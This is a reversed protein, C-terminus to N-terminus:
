MTRACGDGYPAVLREKTIRRLDQQWESQVTSSPSTIPMRQIRVRALAARDGRLLSAACVVIILWARHAFLPEEEEEDEEAQERDMHM